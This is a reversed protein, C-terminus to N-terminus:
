TFHRAKNERFCKLIDDAAFTIPTKARAFLPHVIRDIYECNGSYILLVNRSPLDAKVVLICFKCFIDYIGVNIAIFIFDFSLGTM